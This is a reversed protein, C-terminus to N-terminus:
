HMKRAPSLEILRPALLNGGRDICAVIEDPKYNPDGPPHSFCSGVAGEVVIEKSWAQAVSVDFEKSPGISLFTGGGRRRGGDSRRPTIYCSLPQCRQLWGRVQVRQGALDEHRAFIQEITLPLPLPMAALLLVVVASM